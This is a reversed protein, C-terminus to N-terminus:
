AKVERKGKTIFGLLTKQGKAGQKGPGKAGKGKRGKTTAGKSPAAAAAAGGGVGGGGSGPARTLWEDRWADVVKNVKKRAKEAIRRCL